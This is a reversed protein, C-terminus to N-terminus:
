PNTDLCGFTDIGVPIVLPRIGAGVTLGHGDNTFWANTDLQVMGASIGGPIFRRAEPLPQRIPLYRGYTLDIRTRVTNDGETNSPGLALMVVKDDEIYKTSVGTQWHNYRGAYTWINLRYTGVQIQGVFTAGQGAGRPTIDGISIRRNDLLAQIKTDNLFHRIASAGMVVDTVDSLGNSRIVDALSELDALKDSAANSWATGVTPFHTAKPSYNLTYVSNNNTDNLTITGTQMVQSTQLEITRGIGDAILAMNRAAEAQAKSVFDNDDFPNQGPVRQLLSGVWSSRASTTPSM